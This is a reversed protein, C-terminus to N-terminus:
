SVLFADLGLNAIRNDFAGGGERLFAELPVADEYEEILVQASTYRKLARPFSVTPRHRFNNEFTSLNNAEIRLDVQSMMMEGFVIVEEPFSLWQMGPFANLITAFFSMIKLDRRITKEVHPHLVKIAVAATPVKPPKYDDSSPIFTRSLRSTPSPDQTHKPGLYDEPLLDPSLVARYVQAIAGVGIPHQGFEIFIEDFPKGFARSILNQTHRLSHPKGNSHLRGFM